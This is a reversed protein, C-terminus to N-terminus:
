RFFILFIIVGLFIFNILFPLGPQPSKRALYNIPIFSIAGMLLSILYATLGFTVFISFLIFTPIIVDGFGMAIKAEDQGYTFLLPMKNDLATEAMEVMSGVLVVSLADYISFVAGIIITIQIYFISALLLAVGSGVIIGLATLSINNGRYTFYILLITIALSATIEIIAPFPSFDFLLIIFLSYAIAFYLVGKLISIKRKRAMLIFFISFAIMLLVYYIPFGINNGSSAKINETYTNIYFPVLLFALANTVLFILVFVYRNIEWQVGKSESTRSESM